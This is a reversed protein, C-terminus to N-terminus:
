LRVWIVAGQKHKYPIPKIEEADRLKWAVNWKDLLHGMSDPICHQQSRIQLINPHCVMCDYLEATGVIMGSGKKILAIDGRINTIGSRMEWTKHGQLILDIWPEDIILGRKIEKGNIIM